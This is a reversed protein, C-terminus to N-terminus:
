KEPVFLYDGKKLVEDASMNPKNNVKGIEEVTVGNRLALEGVTIQEDEIMQFKPPKIVEVAAEPAQADVAPAAPLEIAGEPAPVDTVPAAPLEIVGEQAPVAPVDVPAAPVEAVPAAAPAAAQGPIVLKKGIQLKRADAETMNNVKLLDALKVKFRRAIKEPYVHCHTDIVYHGNRM